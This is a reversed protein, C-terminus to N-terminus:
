DELKEKLNRVFRQVAENQELADRALTIQNHRAAASVIYGTPNSFYTWAEMPIGMGDLANRLRALWPACCEGSVGSSTQIVASEEVSMVRGAYEGRLYKYHETLDAHNQELESQLVALCYLAELRWYEAATEPNELAVSKLAEWEPLQDM